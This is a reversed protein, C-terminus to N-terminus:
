CPRRTVQGVQPAVSACCLAAWLVRPKSGELALAARLAVLFPSGVLVDVPEQGQEAVQSWVLLRM